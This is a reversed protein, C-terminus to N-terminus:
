KTETDKSQITLTWQLQNVDKTQGAVWEGAQRGVQGRFMKANKLVM